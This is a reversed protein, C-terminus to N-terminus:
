PGYYRDAQEVTLHNNCRGEFVPNRACFRCRRLPDQFRGDRTSPDSYESSAPTEIASYRELHELSRQLATIIERICAILTQTLSPM